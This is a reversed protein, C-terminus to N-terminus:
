SIDASVDFFVVFLFEVPFDDLERASPARFNKLTTEGGVNGGRCFTFNLVSAFM